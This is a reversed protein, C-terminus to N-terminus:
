KVHCSACSYLGDYADSKWFSADPVPQGPALAALRKRRVDAFPSYKWRPAAARHADDDLSALLGKAMGLLPMAGPVDGRRLADEGRQAFGDSLMVTAAEENWPALPGDQCIRAAKSGPAPDRCMRADLFARTRQFLARGRPADIPEKRMVILATFLNFMPEVEVASLLAGKDADVLEGGPLSHEHASAAAIWSAIRGDEPRLRQARALLDHARHRRLTGEARVAAVDALSAGSPDYRRAAYLREGAIKGTDVLHTDRITYMAWYVIALGASEREPNTRLQGAEDAAVAREVYGELEKEMAMAAGTVDPADEALAAMM